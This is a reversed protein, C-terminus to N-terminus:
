RSQQILSTLEALKAAPLSHGWANKYESGPMQSQLRQLARWFPLCVDTPKGRVSLLEKGSGKARRSDPWQAITLVASEKDRAFAFEYETPEANWVVTAIPVGKLTQAVASALDGISDRPTASAKLQLIPKETDLSVDIWGYRPRGLGFRMQYVAM